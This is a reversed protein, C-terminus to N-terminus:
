RCVAEADILFAHSAQVDGTEVSGTCLSLKYCAQGLWLRPGSIGNARGLKRGDIIDSRGTLSSSMTMARLELDLSGKRVTAVFSDPSM